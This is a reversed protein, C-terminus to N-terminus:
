AAQRKGKRGERRRDEATLTLVPRRHAYGEVIAAREEEALGLWEAMSMQALQALRPDDDREAWEPLTLVGGALWFASYSRVQHM